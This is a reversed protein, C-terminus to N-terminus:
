AYSRYVSLNCFFSDYCKKKKLFARTSFLYTVVHLTMDNKGGRYKQQIQM